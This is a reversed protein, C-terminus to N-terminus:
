LCIMQPHSLPHNSGFQNKRKWESCKIWQAMPLGEDGGGGSKKEKFMWSVQLKPNPRPRAQSEKLDWQGMKKPKKQSIRSLRCGRSPTTETKGSSAGQFRKLRMSQSSPHAWAVREWGERCRGNGTRAGEILASTLFSLFSLSPLSVRLLSHQVGSQLRVM